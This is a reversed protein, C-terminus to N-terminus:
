ADLIERYFAVHDRAIRNWGPSIGPRRQPVGFRAFRRSAEALSEASEDASVYVVNELPENPLLGLFERESPPSTTIVPVGLELMTWFSGRRVSVGDSFLLLVVNCASLVRALVMDDLFGLLAVHDGLGLAEIHRLFDRKEKVHDAPFDGAFVLRARVGRELLSRLTHLVKYPQKASYIFGFCGLLFEAPADGDSLLEREELIEKDGLAPLTVNIGIPIVRAKQRKRLRALLSAHYASRERESVFLVADSFLALPLISGKRLPHMTRWEHFTTAIKARRRGPILGMIPPLLGPAISAGWGEFPYEIHVLDCREFVRALGTWWEKLSNPRLLVLEVSLGDEHRKALESSLHEYLIETYQGVADKDRASDSGLVLSVKGREHGHM